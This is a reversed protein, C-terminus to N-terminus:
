VVMWEGGQVQGAGDKGMGAGTRCGRGQVIYMDLLRGGEGLVQGVGM